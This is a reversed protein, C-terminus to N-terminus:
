HLLKTKSTMPVPPHSNKLLLGGHIVSVKAKPYVILVQKLATKLSRKFGRMDITNDGFQYRLTTWSLSVPRSPSIRWLRHALWGYVDLCRSSHKLAGVACMRLPVAHHQLSQFFEPSFEVYSPWLTQQEACSPTLARVKSFVPGQFQDTYPGNKKALRMSVVSMRRVQERLTKLNRGTTALGLSRAFATFSTEVEVLASQTKIARSSLHLLLLRARPGFPLPVDEFGGDATSLAGGELRMSVKYRETGSVRQFVRADGLCRYPLGVQCLIAHNFLSPEGWCSALLEVRADILRGQIATTKPLM